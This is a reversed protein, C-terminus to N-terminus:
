IWRRGCLFRSGQIDSNKMVPALHKLSRDIQFYLNCHNLIVQLSLDEYPEALAGDTQLETSVRPICSIGYRKRLFFIIKRLLKNKQPSESPLRFIHKVIRKSFYELCSILTRKYTSSMLLMFFNCWHKCPFFFCENIDLFQVTGGMPFFIWFM